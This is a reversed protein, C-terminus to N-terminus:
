AIADIAGVALAVFEDESIGMATGLVRLGMNARDVDEISAFRVMAMCLVSEAEFRALNDGVRHFWLGRPSSPILEEGIWETLRSANEASYDPNGWLEALFM